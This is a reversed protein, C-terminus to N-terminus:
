FEVGCIACKEPGPGDWNDREKIMIKQNYEDKCDELTQGCVECEHRKKNDM